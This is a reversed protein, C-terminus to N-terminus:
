QQQRTWEKQDCYLMRWTQDRHCRHHHRGNQHHHQTLVWTTRAFLSLGHGPRSSREMESQGQRVKKSAMDSVKWVFSRSRGRLALIRHYHAQRRSHRHALM